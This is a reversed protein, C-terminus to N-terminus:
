GTWILIPPVVWNICVPDPTNKLMCFAVLPGRCPGIM